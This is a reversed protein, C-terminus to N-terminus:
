RRTLSNINNTDDFTAVIQECKNGNENADIILMFVQPFGDADYDFAQAIELHKDNCNLSFPLEKVVPFEFNIKWKTTNNVYYVQDCYFLTQPYPSFKSARDWERWEKVQDEGLKQLLKGSTDSSARNCFLVELDRLTAYGLVQIRPNMGAFIPAKTNALLFKDFISIAFFYSAM